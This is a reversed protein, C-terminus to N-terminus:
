STMLRFSVLFENRKRDLAALKGSAAGSMRSFTGFLDSSRPFLCYDCVKVELYQCVKM